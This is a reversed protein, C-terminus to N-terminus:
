AHPVPNVPLLCSAPSGPSCVPPPPQLPLRAGPCSPVVTPGSLGHPARPAHLTLLWRSPARPWCEPGGTKWSSTRSPQRRLSVLFPRCCLINKRTPRRAGDPRPRATPPRSPRPSAGPWGGIRTRPVPCRHAPWAFAPLYLFGCLRAAPVGQERWDAPGSAEPRGQQRRGRAM